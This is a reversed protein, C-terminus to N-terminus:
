DIFYLLLFGFIFIGNILSYLSLFYGYVIQTTKISILSIFESSNESRIFNYPSNVLNLYGKNLDHAIKFTM